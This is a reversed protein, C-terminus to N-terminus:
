DSANSDRTWRYLVDPQKEENDAGDTEREVCFGHKHYFRRAVRNCQFTWLHLLPMQDQAIKLLASGIGRNQYDPHVYLHDIWGVRFAIFGTVFGDQEALWVEDDAFVVNSFFAVDEAPTHLELMQPMATRFSLRHLRAIAGVDERTARRPVISHPQKAQAEKM